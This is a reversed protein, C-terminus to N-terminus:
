PPFTPIYTAPPPPLTKGDQFTGVILDGVLKRGDALTVEGKEVDAAVVKVGSLLTAPKGQIGLEESPAFALRRLEKWLDAWQQAYFPGDTANEYPIMNYEGRLRGHIDMSRFKELVVTGAREKSFGLEELIRSANPRISIGNGWTREQPSREVVTVNHHVRLVRACITGAIGGGVIIVNLPAMKSAPLTEHQVAASSDSYFSGHHIRIAVTESGM